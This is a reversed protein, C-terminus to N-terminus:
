REVSFICNESGLDDKEKLPCAPLFPKEDVIYFYKFESDVRVLIEWTKDDTKKTEHKEYGDLSSLFFVQQAEPYKLYIRAGNEQAKYYHDACGSCLALLYIAFISNKKM